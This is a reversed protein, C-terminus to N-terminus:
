VAPWIRLLEYQIEVNKYFTIVHKFLLFRKRVHHVIGFMDHIREEPKTQTKQTVFLLIKKLKRKYVTLVVNKNRTLKTVQSNITILVKFTYSFTVGIIVLEM